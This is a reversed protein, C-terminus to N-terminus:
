VNLRLERENTARAAEPKPFEGSYGSLLQGDGTVCVCFLLSSDSWRKRVAELRLARRVPKTASTCYVSGLRRPPNLHLVLRPHIYIELFIKANSIGRM